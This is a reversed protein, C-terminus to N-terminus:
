PKRGRTIFGTIAAFFTGNRTRAALDHNWRTREEATIIGEAVAQTTLADLGWIMAAIPWETVCVTEGYTEVDALGARQLLGHLQIGASANVHHRHHFDLIRRTLAPDGSDILVSGWDVDLLSIWGGPRTVRIMDALAAVPDALHQFVRDARTRDFSADPFPLAHAEGRVFTVAAQAATARATAAALMDPNPDVGCVRGTPGTLGALAIADEGTGCGVDLVHQGPALQLFALGRRKYGGFLQIIKNLYTVGDQQYATQSPPTPTSM